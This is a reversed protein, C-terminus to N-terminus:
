SIVDGTYDIIERATKYGNEICDNMGIGRYANGTLYLGPSVKLREQITKLREGHGLTYQPIAKEWRYIRVMDPESRLSLVPRLEDMVTNILREDDLMAKDPSRAGGVMSRLLVYGEPARNPFISSDWLTGLISRGEMGPILFGFGDLSHAIKRKEYGFCVVSVPPYPIESLTRSLEPDFDRLIRSAVHAPSAIVVAETEFSGASTHLRYIDGSRELGSVSVGLRLREGLVDALADTITQTGNIFSTLKGTPAASVTSGERKKQRKIRILAKILGGYERELEKIRPFCDRISLKYPDGAFIGSVMPDILKELAEKGLRRIVFDAVTEDEPGKPAILDYMIRFKGKWSILGSRLFAPPSEPLINLRGKSLIYRKMANENSRLPKIDLAECLNLTVPRNDLFGNPGKECLFGDVRDSWIKGGPRDEAEFVTIDLDEKSILAYATTLGSIGGGVIAIKM